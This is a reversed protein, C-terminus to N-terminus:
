QSRFMSAILDILEQQRYPKYVVPRAEFGHPLKEDGYATVFIIPVELKELALAVATVDGDVLKIDLLACDIKNREIEALAEFATGVPGVVAADSDHLAEQLDLAIAAEDEVVLIRRGALVGRADM